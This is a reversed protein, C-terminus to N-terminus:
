RHRIRRFNLCTEWEVPIRAPKNKRDALRQWNRPQM